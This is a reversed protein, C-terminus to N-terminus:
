YKVNKNLIKPRQRINLTKTYDKLPQITQQPKTCDKPPTGVESYGGGRGGDDHRGWGGGNPVVKDKWPVGPLAVTDRQPRNKSFLEAVVKELSFLAKM